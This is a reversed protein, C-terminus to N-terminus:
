QSVAIPEADAAQWAAERPSCASLIVLVAFLLALISWKRVNM